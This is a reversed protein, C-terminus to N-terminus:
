AGEERGRCAAAAGSGAGGTPDSTGAGASGATALEWAQSLGRRVLTEIMVRKYAASTGLHPLPHASKAALQAVQGLQGQDLPRGKLAAESEAARLPGSAVSGLVITADDCTAREPRVTLRVAAGAVAFDIAERPSYRLYVGGSGPVPAPIEIQTLLQGPTLVNAQEGRNTYFNTLPMRSAGEVGAITVTAGLAILAPATDAVFLANCHDSGKVVHCVAGGDKYCPTVSQKWLRSQNYYFCRSDLCLNGGLTAMYPLRPRGVAAAAQALMHFRGAVLPSTAVSRLTAAAGIRLGGDKTQEIRDLGSISKINVLAAPTITKQKLKVLLETGGALVKADSQALLSCAEEVTQPELYEFRPLRM